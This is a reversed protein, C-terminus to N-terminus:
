NAETQKKDFYEKITPENMEPFSKILREWTHNKEIAAQVVLRWFNNM